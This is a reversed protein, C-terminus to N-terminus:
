GLLDALQKDLYFDQLKFKERLDAIAKLSAQKRHETLQATIMVNKATHELAIFEFLKTKYGLAELVLVRLSDTLGEAFREEIIGHRLMPRLDDSPTFAQRVYSHCCPAICIFRAKARIARALADDSATNCAHLAVVLDISQIPFDAITGQM